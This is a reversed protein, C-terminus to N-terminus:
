WEGYITGDVLLYQRHYIPTIGDEVVERELLPIYDMYEKEAKEKKRELTKRRGEEAILYCRFIKRCKNLRYAIDQEQKKTIQEAAKSADDAFFYGSGQKCGVLVTGQMQELRNKLIM